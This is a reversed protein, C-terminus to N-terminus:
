RRRHSLLVPRALILVARPAGHHQRLALFGKGVSHDRVRGSDACDVLSCAIGPCNEPRGIKGAIHIVAAKQRQATIPRDDNLEGVIRQNINRPRIEIDKFHPRINFAYVKRDRFVARAPNIKAVDAAPAGLDLQCPQHRGICAKAEDAQRVIADLTACSKRFGIEISNRKTSSPATRNPTSLV